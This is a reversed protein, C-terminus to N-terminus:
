RRLPDEDTRAPWGEPLPARDRNRSQQPRRGGKFWAILVVGGSAALGTGLWFATPAGGHPGWWTQAVVETWPVALFAWWGCILGIAIARDRAAAAVSASPGAVGVVIVTWAAVTTAGSPHPAVIAFPWGAIFLPDHSLLWVVVAGVLLSIPLLLARRSQHEPRQRVHLAVTCGTFVVVVFGLAVVVLDVYWGLRFTGGGTVSVVRSGAALWELSMTMQGLLALGAVVSLASRRSSPAVAAMAASPVALVAGVLRPVFIAAGDSRTVARYMDLTDGSVSVWGLSPAVVCLASLTAIAWAASAPM